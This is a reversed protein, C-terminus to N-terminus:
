RGVRLQIEGASHRDDQARLRRTEGVGPEARVDFRYMERHQPDRVAEVHRDRGRDERVLRAPLAGTMRRLCVSGTLVDNSKTTMPAPVAPSAAAFLARSSPAVTAIVSLRQNPPLQGCMPQM